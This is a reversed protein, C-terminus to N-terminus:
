LHVNALVINTHNNTKIFHMIHHTTPEVEDLNFDNSGRCITIINYQPTQNGAASNAIEFLIKQEYGPKVLSFTGVRNSLSLEM